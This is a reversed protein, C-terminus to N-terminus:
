GEKYRRSMFVSGIGAFGCKGAMVILKNIWGPVCELKNRELAKLSIQVVRESTLWLFKPVSAYTNLHSYDPRKHFDSYTFGPALIQVKVGTNKLEYSLSQTFSNLFSKTGAYVANGALPMYATISSVNIISGQRAKIMSPLVASTLRVTSNIHVTLMESYKKVPKNAFQGRIGFGANNVLLTVRPNESIWQEIQNIGEETALDTAISEVHVKHKEVIETTM